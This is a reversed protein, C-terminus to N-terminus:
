SKDDVLFGLSSRSHLDGIENGGSLDLDFPLASLTEESQATRAKAALPIQVTFTAGAGEGPSEAAVMGGHLEVLHRVIALGLGMGGYSRTTSGDAQRFRDFVYPLFDPSIGIGTDMVKVEAYCDVRELQVQIQGGMPTFKVANSLLNWMVQQLRNSDGLVKGVGPALSINIRISKAQAAPCVVEVASAIVTSLHIPAVNLQMKGQILNSADLLDEVIQKQTLANRQIAELARNVVRSDTVKRGQLIQSWGLIANLPTRLEHYLTALFEDKLRNVQSLEKAKHRLTDELQKRVTIDELLGEVFLDKGEQIIIKNISVWLTKGNVQQLQVERGLLQGEQQLREWLLSREQPPLFVDHLNLRQAEAFNSVGLLNLFATNAELLQGDITARFVGVSLQNLLSQLRVELQAAKQRDNARELALRVAAALRIYHRPSKVVYDDLGAKMADIANEQTASNTFMIVPCHPCTAKLQRLVALGNSWLLHYDIIAIDFESTALARDLSAKDIIQTVDVQDFAQNLQRIVLIRDDINDDILLVRLM